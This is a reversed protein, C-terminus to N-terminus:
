NIFLIDSATILAPDTLSQLTVDGRGTVGSGTSPSWAVNVRGGQLSVVLDSISDVGTAQRDFVLKDANDTFDQVLDRGSDAERFEIRDSGTGTILTDNGAGGVLTDDQAGGDLLDDGLGGGLRDFGTGGALRNARDDGTLLDNFASGTLDTVAADIGTTAPPSPPAALVASSWHAAIRQYAAETPHIGDFLDNTTFGAMEVLSVNQGSLIASAVEARIVTNVADVEGTDDDSLPLVTAVYVRTAPNFATVQDLMTALATRVTNQPTTEQLVNNAGAMLLITEPRYATLLDPLMEALDDAWAGPYGANNPDPIAGNTKPGVMDFLKGAAAMDSWFYGRYGHEDVGPPAIGYTISDGLPMLTQASSWAGAGLSASVGRTASAFSLSSGPQPPTVSILFSRAAPVSGDENGDEVSVSFSASSGQAGNHRFAVQGAALQQGTFAAAAAGNVLISGNVPSSTTFTVGSATDDPDTYFLDATTLTYTAGTTIAAQLDGTLVPAVNPAAGFTISAAATGVPQGGNATGDGDNLTVALQRTLRSPAAANTTYGIQRLLTQARALTANTSTFSVVLDAGNSGGTVSGVAVGNVSVTSGSLTVGNGAVLRLQDGAAANATFAVRLSGGSLNPSDVDALTGGPAILAVSGTAGYPLTVGTGAAAGNLDVVPADNVPTVTVTADRAISAAVGDSAVVRVTRAAATPQNSANTYTIGRVLDQYVATAARGTITLAGSAADYGVTLGAAAAAAAAGSSLALSEVANGDPRSLLTATVSTLQASDADTLTAAPAIARPTQEVASATVGTGSASGNLDLNPAANPTAATMAANRAVGALTLSLSQSAVPAAGEDWDYTLNRLLTQVRAATANSTFSFVLPTGNGGGSWTAIVLGDVSIRDASDDVGGAFGIQVEPRFGSVSLTQGAFDGTATLTANPILLVEGFSAQYARTSDLGAATGDLDFLTVTAM